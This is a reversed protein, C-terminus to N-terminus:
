VHTVLLAVGAEGGCDVLVPGVGNGINQALKAKAVYHDPGPDVIQVDVLSPNALLGGVVAKLGTGGGCNGTITVEQGRQATPNPTVEVTARAGKPPQNRQTGQTEHGAAKAAAANQQDVPTSGATTASDASAVTIGLAGAAVAAAGAAALATVTRRNRNTSM